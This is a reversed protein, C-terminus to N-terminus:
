EPYEFEVKVMIYSKAATSQSWTLKFAQKGDRSFLEVPHREDIHLQGESALHFAGVKKYSPTGATIDETQEVFVTVAAGAILQAWIKVRMGKDPRIYNVANVLVDSNLSFTGTTSSGDTEGYFTIIESM